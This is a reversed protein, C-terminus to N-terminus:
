PWFFSFLLIYSFRTWGQADKREWIKLTSDVSASAVLTRPKEPKKTCYIGETFTVVSTHGTLVSSIEFQLLWFQWKNFINWTTKLIVLKSHPYFTTNENSQVTENRKRWVICTKDTSSSVFEDESALNRKRIWRVSNVRDKHGVVTYQVKTPSQLTLWLTIHIDHKSVKLTNLLFKTLYVKPLNTNKPMEHMPAKQTHRETVTVVLFKKDNNGGAYM